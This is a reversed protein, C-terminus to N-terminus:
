RYIINLHSNLKTKDFPTIPNQLNGITDVDSLFNQIYYNGNYGKKQLDEIILNIDSIDLLDSHLTTRVELTLDAQLLLKLSEEFLHYNKNKTIDYFKSKPAKYDLAVYDLLKDALLAQIIHPNTGNTDLKIKFGLAKVKKCFTHLGEFNTAEGGSLVVGELFGIRKALFDLAYEQSYLGKSFVIDENYCYSCRMNCGSFWIITSLHDPYDLVSFPTIDHIPKSTTHEKPVSIHLSKLNSVSV